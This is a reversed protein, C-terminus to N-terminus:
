SHPIEKRQRLISGYCSQVFNCIYTTKTSPIYIYLTYTYYTQVGIKKLMFMYITSKFINALSM